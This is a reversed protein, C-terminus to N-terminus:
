VMGSWAHICLPNGAFQPNTSVVCYEGFKKMIKLSFIHCPQARSITAEAMAGLENVIPNLSGLKGKSRSCM